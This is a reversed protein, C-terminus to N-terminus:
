PVSFPMCVEISLEDRPLLPLSLDQFAEFNHSTDYCVSCQLSSQLQGEFLDSIISSHAAREAHWAQLAQM